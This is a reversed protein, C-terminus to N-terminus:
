AFSAAALLLGAVCLAFVGLTKLFFSVAEERRGGLYLMLPEFFFLYAMTAASLVFLSLMFMPVLISEEGDMPRLVFRIVLVITVIYAFAAGANFFPSHRM